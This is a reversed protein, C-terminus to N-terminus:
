SSERITKENNQKFLTSNEDFLITRDAFAEQAANAIIQFQLKSVENLGSLSCEFLEKMADFSESTTPTLLPQHVM